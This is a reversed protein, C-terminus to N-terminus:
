ISKDATANAAAPAPAQYYTEYTKKDAALKLFVDLPVIEAKESLGDLIHKVKEVTNSERVHILLFYPRKDNLQILENLDAIADAVKCDVALYYDYSILPRSDRLDFTHAASYGNIFGLVDPFEKYYRDGVERSLDAVGNRRHGDTHEM